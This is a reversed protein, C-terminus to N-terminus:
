GSPYLKPWSLAFSPSAVASAFHLRHPTQICGRSEGTDRPAPVCVHPSLCLWPVSPPLTRAPTSQVCSRTTSHISLSPHILTHSFSHFSPHTFTHLFSHVSPLTWHARHSHLFGCISLNNPVRPTEPPPESPMPVKSETHGSGVKATTRGAGTTVLVKPTWRAGASPSSARWSGGM